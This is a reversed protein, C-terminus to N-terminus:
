SKGTSGFGGDRSTKQLPKEKLEYLETPQNKVLEGQCLRDGDRVTVVNGSTNWLTIFVPEVYDSDIVGECNILTLGEKISLGSRPHIRVSYGVPIDFILGTPILAREGPTLAISAPDGDVRAKALEQRVTCLSFVKILDNHDFRARIDFCASGETAFAPITAGPDARYIGLEM